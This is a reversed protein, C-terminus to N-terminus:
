ISITEWGGLPFIQMTGQFLGCGKGDAEELYMIADAM